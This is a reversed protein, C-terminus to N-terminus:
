TLLCVRVHPRLLITQSPPCTEGTIAPRTVVRPQSVPRSFHVATPTPIVLVFVAIVILCWVVAKVL